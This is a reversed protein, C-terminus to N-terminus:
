RHKNTAAKYKANSQKIKQNVEETMTQWQEAMNKAAVSAGHGGLLKILDLAQRPAKTYVISFPAKRTTRHVVSNYSFEAQALALDWQKHKDGFISRILNGLTRNVVYTQGNIQPHATSSYNLSSDFM